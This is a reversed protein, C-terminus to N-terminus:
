TTLVWDFSVEIRVVVDEPNKPKPVSYMTRIGLDNEDSHPNLEPVMVDKHFYKKQNGTAECASVGDDYSTADKLQADDRYYTDEDDSSDVSTNEEDDSVLSEEETYTNNVGGLFTDRDEFIKTLSFEKETRVEDEQTSTEVSIANSEVMQSEEVSTEDQTCAYEAQQQEQQQQLQWQQYQQRQLQFRADKEAQAALTADRDRQRARKKSLATLSLNLKVM